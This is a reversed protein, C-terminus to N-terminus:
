KERRGPPPVTANNHKQRYIQRSNANEERNAQRKQQQSLAGGNAQRENHVQQAVGAQNANSCHNVDRDHRKHEASPYIFDKSLYASFYSAIFASHSVCCTFRSRQQESFDSKKHFYDFLNESFQKM